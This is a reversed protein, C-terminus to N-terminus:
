LPFAADQQESLAQIDNQATWQIAGDRGTWYLRIEAQQMQEITYEDIIPTSAIAVQPAVEALMEPLIEDGNWWLIDAKLNPKPPTPLSPDSSNVEPELRDLLKIQARPDNDAILLWTTRDTIIRFVSPSQNVLEIKLQPTIELIQGVALSSVDIGSTTMERRLKDYAQSAAGGGVDRFKAIEISSGLINAWGKSVDPQPDTAIAWDIENVGSKQLLPLLTYAATRNNGANVLITEGQHTVVMIPVRGADLLIVRFQSNHAITTPIFVVALIVVVGILWRKQWWPHLWVLVILVYALLMQWLSITGLNTVANPLGNAWAVIATIATVPTLLVWSALAGLPVFVIGLLGAILGGIIAISIFPTVLVNTFINYISFRGFVFLQLPLIWIFAAIPVSLANAALPPLWTMQKTLPTATVILGLTALFSLQFGLDWIWLPQIILLAVAAFALGVLPRSRRETVLGVLGGMGMIAARLISPSGGALILFILLVLSGRIFKQQPSSHRSVALMAGLLLAVHFGSAALTWALGVERFQDRWDYPIDTVRNGLVLASLLGGKPMGLGQVHARTLRQRLRWGGWFKPESQLTLERGQLGAFIGQRALYRAFDFEGPNTAGSPAYLSGEISVIQGRRLGTAQTLSITTYLNGTVPQTELQSTTSEGENSESEAESGSKTLTISDVSMTFKARDSATLRPDQNITGRVVVKDIPVYNAIDNTTPQPTRFQTYLCAVCAILGILFWVWRKPGKRWVVPIVLGMLLGLGLTSLWALWGSLASAFTGGIFALCLIAFILVNM